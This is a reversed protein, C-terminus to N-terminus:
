DIYFTPGATGTNGISRRAVISPSEEIILPPREQGDISKADPTVRTLMSEAWTQVEKSRTLPYSLASTMYWAFMDLADDAWISLDEVDRIYRLKISNAGGANLMIERGEIDYETIQDREGDGQISLIRLCDEPILYKDAWDYEPTGTRSITTRKKAFNWVANRLVCRRAIPYRRAATEAVQTTAPSISTIAPVGLNGLALNILEVPSRIAAM